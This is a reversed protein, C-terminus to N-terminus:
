IRTFVPGGGSITLAWNSGDASDTFVIRNSAPIASTQKTYVPSGGNFTLLWVSGDVTDLLAKGSIATSSTVQNYEPAGSRVTFEWLTVNDATDIFIEGNTEPVVVPPITIPDPTSASLGASGGSIIASFDDGNPVPINYVAPDYDIASITFKQDGSRKIGRVRVLKAQSTVSALIYPSDAIPAAPLSSSLTLTSFYGDASVTISTVGVTVMVELDYLDVSMGNTLGVTSDVTVTSGSQATIRVDVGASTQVLRKVPMTASSFGSVTVVNGSISITGTVRKLAPYVVTLKQGSAYTYPADLIPASATGGVILGGRAWQPVDHQLMVVNGVRCVIAQAPSDWKHTRLLLQNELLRHAGWYYAQVTNTCGLLNVRTKKIAYGADQEEQPICRVPNRTKYDDDANAYSVEVENARDEIPLYDKSYSDKLINGVNFVQVPVDPEDLMVGVQTGIRTPTARSMMGIAAFDDWVTKNPDEFIGNFVALKATSDISEATTDATGDGGTYYVALGVFSFVMQLTDAPPLVELTNEIIATISAGAVTGIDGGYNVGSFPAHNVGNFGVQMNGGLNVSSVVVVPIVRTINATSPVKGPLVFNNWSASVTNPPFPWGGTLNLSGSTSTTHVSGDVDAFGFPDTRHVTASAPSHLGAVAWSMSEGPSLPLPPAPAAVTSGSAPILSDCLEAWEVFAPLNVNASDLGGGVLPDTLVDYAVLAPNDHGFGALATPMTVRTDYEIEATVQINAGAIQDTAMIRLGLLILNPYALADYCTEQVSELWLEDGFHDSEHEVSIIPNNHAGSGIKEVKIDYCGAPLDDITTIQRLIAQRINTYVHAAGLTWATDTSLKYYVNYQVDLRKIVMNDDYRWVGRPFQVTVDLRQTDNRTGKVVVYNKAIDCRIRQSQPYNNVIRNFDATPATNPASGTTTQNLIIWSSDSATVPKQDNAGLKIFYAVDSFSAIDNGNIRLDSLSVAPGFGFCVIMNLWQRGIDGAGDDADHLDLDAHQLDVWSQIVNGGSRFIGYGKPVPLGSRATTQPGDFTYSLGGPKKEFLSAIGNVLLTGGVAIIAGALATATAAALTPFLVAGLAPAAILAAVMVGILAVSKLTSNGLVPMAVVCDTECLALETMKEPPLIEGNLSLTYDESGLKHEAIFAMLDARSFFEHETKGESPRFPNDVLILKM